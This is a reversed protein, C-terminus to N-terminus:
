NIRSYLPSSSSSGGSLNISARIISKSKSALSYSVKSVNRVIKLGKISLQAKLIIVTNASQEKIYKIIGLFQKALVGMISTISQLYSRNAYIIISYQVELSNQLTIISIPAKLFDIIPQLCYRIYLAVIFLLISILIIYVLATFTWNPM